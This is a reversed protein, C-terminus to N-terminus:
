KELAEIAKAVGEGYAPDAKACHGIWREQIERPVGRMARATNEFLAQQQEAAM